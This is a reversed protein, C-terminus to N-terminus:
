SQRQHQWPLQSQLVTSSSCNQMNIKEVSFEHFFRHLRKLYRHKQRLFDQETHFFHSTEDELVTYVGIGKFQYKYAFWTFCFTWLYGVFCLNYFTWLHYIWPNGQEWELTIEMQKLNEDERVFLVLERTGQAQRIPFFHAASNTGAIVHITLLLKSLSIMRIEKFLGITLGSKFFIPRSLFLIL